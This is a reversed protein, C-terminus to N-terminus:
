IAQAKETGKGAEIAQASEWEAEILMTGLVHEAHHAATGAAVMKQIAGRVLPDQELQRNVAAHMGIHALPNV